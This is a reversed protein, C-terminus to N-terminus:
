VKNNAIKPHEKEIYEPNVWGTQFDFGKYSPQTPPFGIKKWYAIDITKSRWSPARLYDWMLIRNLARSAAVVGARTKAKILIDIMKDVAPDKVGAYNHSGHVDALLSGFYDLQENGPSNSTPVDEYIIDFDFTSRRNVYQANDINRITVKIGLKRLNAAYFATFQENLPTSLLIEITFPNGDKDVLQGNKLTYGAQNLLGMAKELNARADKATAYSPVEYEKTFLEDPVLGRVQNLDELEEGEPLGKVMLVPDNFYQTIRTYKNFFLARNITDFDLALYLAKRVRRDSFKPLRTNFYFGPSYKTINPYSIKGVFGEKVGSFNYERMWRQMVKEERYDTLGGKKFAEWQANEDRMYTYKIKDFNNRGVNIPLNAGWYDKVREWVIEKGPIFSKIKYPGSGLPIELTPKTIDRKKGNKDFGEWWHKPLIVLDGMCSPMERDGKIKFVFKVINSNVAEAHDVMAYYGRYYPSYKRLVNFSWIVDDVTIPQGDHWRARPDLKIEVWAEDKPYRLAQGIGPYSLGGQDVSQYMLTDYLLGGFLPVLGQPPTGAVIYPNLSDFTGVVIMNLTGGKPANPNVFDYHQFNPGYKSEETLTPATQWELANDNANDEDKSQRQGLLQADKGMPATTTMTTSRSSIKAATEAAQVLGMFCLSTSISMFLRLIIYNKHM